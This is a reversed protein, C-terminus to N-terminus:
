VSEVWYAMSMPLLETLRSRASYHAEFETADSWRVVANPSFNINSQSAVARILAPKFNLEVIGQGAPVTVGGQTVQYIKSHGAFRILRGDPIVQTETGAAAFQVSVSTARAAGQASLRIPDHTGMATGENQPCVVEFTDM